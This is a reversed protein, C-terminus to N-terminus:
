LIKNLRNKLDKGSKIDDIFSVVINQGYRNSQFTKIGELQTHSVLNNKIIKETIRNLSAIILQVNDIDKYEKLSRSDFLGHNAIYRMDKSTHNIYLDCYILKKSKGRGRLGLVDHDSRVVNIKKKELVDKLTLRIERMKDVTSKRKFEELILDDEIDKNLQNVIPTTVLRIRKRLTTATQALNNKWLIINQTLLDFHIRLNGEDDGEKQKTHDFRALYIVAKSLGEAFGAEYYVSPRAYSLDAIVFDCATILEIIKRDIKDNHNVRDVRLAQINLKKLTPNIVRDYIANVDDKGFASAIFCKLKRM